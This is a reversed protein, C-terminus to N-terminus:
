VESARKFTDLAEKFRTAIITSAGGLLLTDDFFQSHNIRKAGRIIKINSINKKRREKDLRRSLAKALLIYLIPSIPFGQRLGRSSKFFTTPRGNVLLSDM